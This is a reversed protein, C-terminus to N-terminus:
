NIRRERPGVYEVEEDSLRRVPKEDMEEIAHASLGVTRSIVFFAKVSNVSFGLDLLCAAMSGDINLCYKKGKVQELEKEIGLALQMYKGLLGKEKALEYLKMTRPDTTYTKHGFGPIRQKHEIAYAVVDEYNKGQDITQFFLKASEEIAGGHHKGLTLLGAAIATNLDSGGSVTLRSTVSSLVQAGHDIASVLLADVMAAVDFSPLEGQLLLYVVESFSKGGILDKLPYGRILTNDQTSSIKTKIQM